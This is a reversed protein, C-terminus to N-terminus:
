QWQQRVERLEAYLRDLVESCDYILGMNVKHAIQNLNNGIPALAKVVDLGGEKVIIEKGLISRLLFERLSLGSKSVKRQILAM